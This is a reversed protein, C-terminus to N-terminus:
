ISCRCGTTAPAGPPAVAQGDVLTAGCTESTRPAEGPPTCGYGWPVAEAAAGPAALAAAVGLGVGVISALVYATGMLMVTAPVRSMVVDIVPQRYSYSIGLDGQLVNGLYIFLQTMFPKDLGLDIRMQAIFEDSVAGPGIMITAPDGPAAHLLTFNVLIIGLILPIAQLFRLLIYRLIARFQM